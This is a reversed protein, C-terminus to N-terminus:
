EASVAERVIPSGSPSAAATQQAEEQDSYAVLVPPEQDTTWGFAQQLEALKAHVTRANRRGMLLLHHQAPSAAEYEDEAFGWHTVKSIMEVPEDPLEFALLHLSAQRLVEEFSQQSATVEQFEEDIRAKNDRYYAAFGEADLASLLEVIRQYRRFSGDALVLRQDEDERVLVEDRTPVAALHASGGAGAAIGAVATYVEASSIGASHPRREAATQAPEQWSARTVGPATAAQERSPEENRMRAGAPAAATDDALTAVARSATPAEPGPGASGWPWLLVLAALTFIIGGVITFV